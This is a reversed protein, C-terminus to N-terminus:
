QRVKSKELGHKFGQKFSEIDPNEIDDEMEKLDELEEETVISFLNEKLERKNNYERMKKYIRMVYKDDKWGLVVFSFVYYKSSQKLVCTLVFNDTRRQDYYTKLYKAKKNVGFSDAQLLLEAWTEPLILQSGYLMAVIFEAPSDEFKAFDEDSFLREIKLALPSENIDGRDILLESLHKGIEEISDTKSKQAFLTGNGIILFFVLVKIMKPVECKTESYNYM